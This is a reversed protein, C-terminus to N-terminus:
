VRPPCFVKGDLFIYALKVTQIDNEPLGNHLFRCCMVIRRVTTKDCRTQVNKRLNNTSSM